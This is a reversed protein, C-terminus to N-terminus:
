EESFARQIAIGDVVLWAIIQSEFQTDWGRFWLCIKTITVSERLIYRDELFLFLPLHWFVLSVKEYNIPLGKTEAICFPTDSKAGNTHDPYM